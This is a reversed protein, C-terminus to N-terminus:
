CVDLLRRPNRIRITELQETSVGAKRLRPEIHRSLHAYGWGGYAVLQMKTCVDHSVLLRELYGREVMEVLAAIRETDRPYESLSSDMYAEIGFTDFEAYAGREAVSTAYDVDIRTDLHGVVVRDLPVGESELVDLALHALRNPRYNYIHLTIPLGTAHQARGAARLVKQEDPHMEDGTHGVVYMPEGLGIEGIIGPRIGSDGIGDRIERVMDDALADVSAGAVHPPHSRALYFGTNTLVNLGSRAAIARLARPDRGIGRPSVDVISAGGEGKFALAESVALEVDDLRFNAKLAGINRRLYGLNALTIPQEALARLTVEAPPQWKYSVDILLHEHMLTVGLQEGPIPGLVTM